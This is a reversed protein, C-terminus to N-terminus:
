VHARGIEVAGLVPIDDSTIALSISSIGSLGATAPDIKSAMLPALKSSSPSFAALFSGQMNASSQPTDAALLTTSGIKVDTIFNGLLYVRGTSDRDLERITVGQGTSGDQTTALTQVNSVAGTASNMSLVFGNRTTSTTLGTNMGISSGAIILKGTGDLAIRDVSADGSGPFTFVKSISGDAKYVAVFGDQSPVTTSGSGTSVTKNASTKSQVGSSPDFDATGSFSGGVYVSGDTDTVVDNVVIGLSAGYMDYSSPQTSTLAAAFGKPGSVLTVPEVVTYTAIAKGITAGKQVPTVRAQDAASLKSLDFELTYTGPSSTLSALHDLAVSSASVPGDPSSGNVYAFAKGALPISTGNKKLTFAAIPICPVPTSPDYTNTPDAAKATSAIPGSFTLLVSDLGATPSRFLM